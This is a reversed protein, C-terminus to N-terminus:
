QSLSKSGRLGDSPPPPPPFPLVVGAGQVIGELKAAAIAQQTLGNVANHVGAVKRSQWILLATNALTALAVLVQALVTPEVYM